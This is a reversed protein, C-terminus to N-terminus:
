ALQTPVLPAHLVCCHSFFLCHYLYFPLALLFLCIISLVFDYASYMMMMMMMVMMMMKMMMMMMMMMMM